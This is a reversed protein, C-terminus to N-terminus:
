RSGGPLAFDVGAERNQAITAPLDLDAVPIVRQHGHEAVFVSSGTLVYSNVQEPPRGDNFVLTVPPHDLGDDPAATNQAAPNQAASNQQPPPYAGPNYPPRPSPGYGQDYAADGYPPQPGGSPAQPGYDAPPPAGPKTQQATDGDNNWDWANGFSFPDAYYPLGVFGVGFAGRNRHVHNGQVQNPQVQV